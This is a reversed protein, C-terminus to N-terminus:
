FGVVVPQIWIFRVMRIVTKQVVLWRKGSTRGDKEKNTPSVAHRPLDLGAWWRFYSSAVGSGENVTTNQFSIAQV